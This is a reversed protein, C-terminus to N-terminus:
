IQLNAITNYLSVLEEVKVRYDYRTAINIETAHADSLKEVREKIVNLIAGKVDIAPVPDVPAEAPAAVAEPIDRTRNAKTEPM